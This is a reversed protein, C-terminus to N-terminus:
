QVSMKEELERGPDHGDEEEVTGEDEESAESVGSAMSPVTKLPAELLIAPSALQQLTPVGWHQITGATFPRVM